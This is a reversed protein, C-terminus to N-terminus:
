ISIFSETAQKYWFLKPNQHLQSITKQMKGLDTENDSAAGKLSLM